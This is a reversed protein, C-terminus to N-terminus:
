HEGSVGSGLRSRPMTQVSAHHYETGTEKHRYGGLFPKKVQAKEVSVLVERIGQDTILYSVRLPARGIGHAWVLSHIM